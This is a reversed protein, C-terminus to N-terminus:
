SRRAPGIRMPRSVCPGLAPTVGLVEFFTHTVRRGEVKEPVGSGFLTVSHDAIAAISAFVDNHAVVLRYNIPAVPDAPAGTITTYEQVLVLRSPDRYPLSRLLVADVLSFVAGTGAIALAMTVVIASPSDRVIAFAVCPTSM